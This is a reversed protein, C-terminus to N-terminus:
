GALTPARMPSVSDVAIRTPHEHHGECTALIADLARLLAAESRSEGARPEKKLFCTMSDKPIRPSLRFTFRTCFQTSSIPTGPNSTLVDQTTNFAYRCHRGRKFKRHPGM